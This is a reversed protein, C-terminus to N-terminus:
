KGTDRIRGKMEDAREATESACTESAPASKLSGGDELGPVGRVTPAGKGTHHLPRGTLHTRVKLPFVSCCLHPDRPPLETRAGSM